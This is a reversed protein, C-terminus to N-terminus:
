GPFKPGFIHFGVSVCKISSTKETYNALKQNLINLIGLFLQYLPLRFCVNRKSKREKKFGLNQIHSGRDCLAWVRGMDVVNIRCPWDDLLHTLCAQYRWLCKFCFCFCRTVFIFANRGAFTLLPVYIGSLFVSGCFQSTECCLFVILHIYLLKADKNECAFVLIAM